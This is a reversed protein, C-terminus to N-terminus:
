DRCSGGEIEVGKRIFEAELKRALELDLRHGSRIAIIQAEFPGVLYLDGIIDLIKHRVIENPFRLANQYSDEGVVVVSELDGGLGLGQSRLFEIEGQFAITRASAIDEIFREPEHIYQYFQNGTVAHDSTFCYTIRLGEGPLALLYSRPEDLGEVWIPRTLRRIKRRVGQRVLGASTLLRVYEEACGGANPLEEGDVEVLLNDIGLGHLAAMLHEITQIRWDDRGIAICRRTDVVVGPGATLPSVALDSRVFCIGSDPPLPSLKITATTGSHLARGQFTVSQAITQQQPLVDVEPYEFDMYNYCTKM